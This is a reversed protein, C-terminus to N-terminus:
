NFSFPLLVTPHNRHCAGKIDFVYLFAVSLIYTPLIHQDFVCVWIWLLISKILLKCTTNSIHKEEASVPNNSKWPYCQAQNLEVKALQITTTNPSNTIGAFTIRYITEPSEAIPIQVLGEGTGNSGWIKWGSFVHSTESIYVNLEPLRARQRTFESMWVKYRFLLCYNRLGPFSPSVMLIHVGVATGRSHLEMYGSLFYCAKLWCFLKIHCLIKRGPIETLINQDVNCPLLVTHVRLNDRTLGLILACMGKAWTGDQLNFAGDNKWKWIGDKSTYQHTDYGCM